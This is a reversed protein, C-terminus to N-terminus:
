KIIDGPGEEYDASLAEKIVWKGNVWSLHYEIQAGRSICSIRAFADNTDYSLSDLTFIYPRKEKPSPILFLKKQLSDPIIKFAIQSNGWKLNENVTLYKPKKLIVSNVFDRSAMERYLSDFCTQVIATKTNISDIAVQSLNMVPSKGSPVNCSFLIPVLILFKKM